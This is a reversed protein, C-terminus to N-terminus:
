VVRLAGLSTADFVEGAVQGAVLIWQAVTGSFAWQSRRGQVNWGAAAVIPQYNYQAFALAPLAGASLAFTSAAPLPNPLVITGRFILYKAGSLQVVAYALPNGVQTSFGNIIKAPDVNTWDTLLDANLGPLPDGGGAAIYEIELDRNTKKAAQQPTYGLANLYQTRLDDALSTM